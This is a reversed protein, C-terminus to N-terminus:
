RGLRHKIWDGGEIVPRKGAVESDVPYHVGQLRRGDELEIHSQCRMFLGRQGPYVEEIADLVPIMEVVICFVDGVVLGAQHDVVMGPYAGFDLLRGRMRALGLWAPPPLAHRAAVLLIDNAEGRRLTGYAFLNLRKSDAPLTM